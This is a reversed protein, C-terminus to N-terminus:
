KIFSFIILSIIIGLAAASSVLLLEVKSNRNNTGHMCKLGYLIRDSEKFYDDLIKESDENKGKSFSVLEILEKKSEPDIKYKSEGFIKEISNYIDM